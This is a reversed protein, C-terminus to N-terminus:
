LDEFDREPPRRPMARPAQVEVTYEASLYERAQRRRLKRMLWWARVLVVAAIVFGAVLAATVFVAAVALLILGVIVTGVWGLWSRPMLYFDRYRASM